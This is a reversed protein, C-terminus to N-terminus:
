MQRLRNGHTDRRLSVLRRAARGDGTSQGGCASFKAFPGACDHQLRRLRLQTEGKGAPREKDYLRRRLERFQQRLNNASPEDADSMDHLEEETERLLEWVENQPMM